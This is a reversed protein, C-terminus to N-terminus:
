GSISLDGVDWGDINQTRTTSMTPQCRNGLDVVVFSVLGAMRPKKKSAAIVIRAAAAPYFGGRHAIV